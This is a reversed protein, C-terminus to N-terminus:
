RGFWLTAGQPDACKRLVGEIAGRVRDLAGRLAAAGDLRQSKIAIELDCKPCRVTRERGLDQELRALAAAARECEAVLGQLDAIEQGTLPIAVAAPESDGGAQRGFRFM